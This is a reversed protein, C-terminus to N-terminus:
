WDYVVSGFKEEIQQKRANVLQQYEEKDEKILAMDVGSIYDEILWYNGTEIEQTTLGIDLSEKNRYLITGIKDLLYESLPKVEIREYLSYDEEKIFEYIDGELEGIHEYHNLLSEPVNCLEKLTDAKTLKSIFDDVNEEPIGNEQAFLRLVEEVGM